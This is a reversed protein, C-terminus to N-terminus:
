ADQPMEQLLFKTQEHLQLFKYGKETVVLKEDNTSQILGASRMMQLYCQSQEYSLNAKYMVHTKLRPERVLVLIDALIDEKSRIKSM